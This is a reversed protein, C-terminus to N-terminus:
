KIVKCPRFFIVSAKIFWAYLSSTSFGISAYLMSTCDGETGIEKKYSRELSGEELYVSFVM